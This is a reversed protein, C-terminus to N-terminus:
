WHPSTSFTSRSRSDRSSTGNSSSEQHGRALATCWEMPAQPSVGVGVTATERDVTSVSRFGSGRTPHARTTTPQSQDFQAERRALVFFGGIAIVAFMWWQYAYFLHPGM